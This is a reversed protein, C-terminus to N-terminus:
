KKTFKNEKYNNYARMNNNFIIVFSMIYIIITNYLNNFIIFYLFSSVWLINLVVLLIIMFINIKKSPM